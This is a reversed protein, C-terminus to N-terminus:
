RSRLSANLRLVHNQGDIALAGLAHASFLRDFQDAALGAGGDGEGELALGLGQIHSQCALPNLQMRHLVLDVGGGITALHTIDAELLERCRSCFIHAKGNLIQLRLTDITIYEVQAAIGTSQQDGTNFNSPLPEILARNHRGFGAVSNLVDLPGRPPRQRIFGQHNQDVLTRGTGTLDEGTGELVVM